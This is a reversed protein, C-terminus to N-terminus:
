AGDAKRGHLMRVTVTGRERSLVVSTKADCRSSHPVWYRLTTDATTQEVPAAIQVNFFDEFATRFDAIIHPSPLKVTVSCIYVGPADKVRSQMVAVPEGGAEFTWGGVMTTADTSVKTLEAGSIASWGNNAALLSLSKEDEGNQLCSQGALQLLKELDQRHSIEEAITATGVAQSPSSRNTGPLALERLRDAAHALKADFEIAKSYDARAEELRSLHYLVDGRASYSTSDTPNLRIAESLDSLSKEYDGLRGFAIGRNYFILFQGPKIATAKDYDAIAEAYKQQRSLINGRNMLAFYLDPAIKLAESFDLLARDFDLLRYYANGRNYYTRADAPKLKLLETYFTAAASFDGALYAARAKEVLAQAARNEAGPNKNAPGGTPMDEQNATASLSSAAGEVYAALLAAGFVITHGLKM